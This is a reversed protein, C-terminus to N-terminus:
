LTASPAPTPPPAISPEGHNIADVQLRSAAEIRGVADISAQRVRQEQDDSITLLSPHPFFLTQSAMPVRNITATTTASNSGSTADSTKTTEDIDSLPRIERPFASIISTGCHQPEFLYRM